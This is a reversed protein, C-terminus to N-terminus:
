LNGTSRFSSSLKEYLERFLLLRPQYYATLEADPEIVEDLPPPTCVDAPSEGTVSLRALRAAGLAPGVEGGLRYTLPKDLVSSIIKGWLKSRAGGGIVSIAEIETGARILAEQGDAFAFAVGELVARGLQARNTDHNLGFFVGQANPDNHPTREGSLYPLFILRDSPRDDHEIEDLLAAEYEMGTVRSVWTLCSAASLIVSMQHWANPLAHCFAHLAMDPNPQFRDAAVFYVGSTGLSLSAEGPQIVGAGIAGAAQDGAGACVPVPEIGWQEAVDKRLYATIESGEFLEPMQEVTLECADLLTASWKRAGVDLWLTGSSDSMDSAYSGTLRLRIYDKPLLVHGIRDFIEAEHNKVWILKPATFGPMALNGTIRHFDPVSSELLACERESRGDNWLIAPRLVRDRDDLLAAGHMQGSLGIAQIAAFTSRGVSERLTHVSKECATWWAEPSQESWLPQPRSVDLSVEAQGLLQDQDDLLITKVGSTGLDIGLFM